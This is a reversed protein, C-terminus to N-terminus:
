AFACKTLTLIAGHGAGPVGRLCAAVARPLFQGIGSPYSYFKGQLTSISSECVSGSLGYQNCAQDLWSGCIKGPGGTSHYIRGSASPRVDDGPRGRHRSSRPTNRPTCWSFRLPAIPQKFIMTLLEACDGNERGGPHFWGEPMAGEDSTYALRLSLM